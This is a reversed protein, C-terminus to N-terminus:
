MLPRHSLVAHPRTNELYQPTSKKAPPPLKLAYVSTHAAYLFIQAVVYYSRKESLSVFSIYPAAKRKAAPITLAQKMYLGM